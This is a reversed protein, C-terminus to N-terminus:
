CVESVYFRKKKLFFVLNKWIQYPASGRATRPRYWLPSGVSPGSDSPRYTIWNDSSRGFLSSNCSRRHQTRRRFIIAAESAAAAESCSCYSIHRASAARRIERLRTWFKLCVPLSVASTALFRSFAVSHGGAAPTTSKLLQALFNSCHKRNPGDSSESLCRCITSM